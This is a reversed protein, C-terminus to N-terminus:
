AGREILVGAKVAAQVARLKMAEKWVVPSVNIEHPKAAQGLRQRVEPDAAGWELDVGPELVERNGSENVKTKRGIGTVSFRSKQTNEVKM